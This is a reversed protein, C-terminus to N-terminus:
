LGQKWLRGWTNSSTCALGESEIKGTCSQGIAWTAIVEVFRLDLLRLQEHEHKLIDLSCGLKNIGSSGIIPLPTMQHTWALSSWYGASTVSSRIELCPDLCAKRILWNTYVKADLGFM